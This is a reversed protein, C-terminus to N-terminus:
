GLACLGVTDDGFRLGFFSKPAAALKGKAHSGHAKGVALLGVHIAVVAVSAAIVRPNIGSSATSPFSHADLAAATNGPPILPSPM